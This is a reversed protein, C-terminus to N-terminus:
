DEDVCMDMYIEDMELIQRLLEPDLNQRQEESVIIPRFWLCFSEPVRTQVCGCLLFLALFIIVFVKM